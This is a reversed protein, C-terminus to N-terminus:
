AIPPKYPPPKFNSLPAGTDPLYRHASTQFTTNIALSGFALVGAPCAGCHFMSDCQHTPMAPELDCCDMDQEGDHGMNHSGSHAMQQTDHMQCMSVQVPQAALLVFMALFLYKM